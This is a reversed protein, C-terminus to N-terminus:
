KVVREKILSVFDDTTGGRNKVPEPTEDRHKALQIQDIKELYSKASHVVPVYQEGIHELYWALVEEFREETIDNKQRFLKIDKSWVRVEGRRMLKLKRGVADILREAALEDYTPPVPGKDDIDFGRMRDGKPLKQQKTSTAVPTEHTKNGFLNQGDGTVRGNRNKAVQTPEEEREEETYNKNNTNKNADPKKVTSTSFNQGMDPTSSSFNQAPTLCSNQGTTPTGSSCEQEQLMPRSTFQLMRAAERDKIRRAEPKRDKGINSASNRNWIDVVRVVLRVRGGKWQVKDITILGKEVLENNAKDVTPISVGCKGAVNKRTMWCRGTSNEGCVDKYTVYIRFASLSLKFDDICKPIMIFPGRNSM